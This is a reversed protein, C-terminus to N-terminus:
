REELRALEVEAKERDAFDSVALSEKLLQKARETEGQEALALALHYRITPSNPDKELAAEFSRTAEKVSGRKFQVWGLTDLTTSIPRNASAREALELAYDLNTEDEAFEWALNNAAGVHAPLVRVTERLLEIADDRRGLVMALQM